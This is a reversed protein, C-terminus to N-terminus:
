LTLNQQAVNFFLDVYRSTKDPDCSVFVDGMEMASPCVETIIAMLVTKYDGDYVIEM